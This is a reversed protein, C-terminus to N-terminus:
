RRRPELFFRTEGAELRYRYQDFRDDRGIPELDASLATPVALEGTCGKPVSLYVVHGDGDAEVGFEFPGHPSHITTSFNPLDVLQPRCVFREFGPEIPRIGAIDRALLILPAVGCHSWQDRSDPSANWFEQITNNERVSPLTAWRDRLEGVVADMRGYRSLAWLRWVANAPYSLGLADPRDLLISLSADTRDDPCQDYLLATALSRDDMRPGDGGGEDLWPLNNVFAGREPSWFADVAAARLDAGVTAYEAAVDPEDFLEAMSSLAHEFAAAAYLTFACTKERQERYADHDMWVVPAGPPDAPLLGDDTRLDALYAAFRKLKRYPAELAEGDGTQRYHHWCDLAFGVGHDLLPGWEAGDIERAPLRALRDYAPWCDLFYGASLLGESFTTLYRRSHAEGGCTLRVAHLQHGVDGGYQQRERGMCDVATEQVANYVTNVSADFLRQLVPDGCEVDPREHFSPLRRRVGVSRIEVPGDAERVHLQLWRLSEFDFPEYVRETGDCILRSWAFFGTDLWATESPDHAEQVLVDVITGSPADIEFWPWGVVQEPFEFTLFTGTAPDDPPDLLWGEGGDIPSAVPEARAEFADPVRNEFWDDPNRNWRVTGENALGVPSVIREEVPPVTRAYLVSKEPDSRDYGRNSPYTSSAAPADAPCSLEMAPLWRDDEFGPRDWGDPHERADFTEQLSRLYWRRHGGPPYARDLHCRWREDTGIVEREGDAYEVDLLCIFGPKGAPWTGDGNGYYLVAAGVTTAGSSVADTLDVPDVELSRPDCPPPGWSVREGNVTLRYRSDASVWATVREPRRDFELERRFLIVSNALTRESPYWLWRAPALDIARRNGGGTSSPDLDVVPISDSMRPISDSM